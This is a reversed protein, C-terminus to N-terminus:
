GDRVIRAGDCDESDAQEWVVCTDNGWVCMVCVNVRSGANRTNTQEGEEEECEDLTLASVRRIDRVMREFQCPATFAPM